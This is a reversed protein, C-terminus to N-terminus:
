RGGKMINSLVEDASKPEPQNSTMVNVAYVAKKLEQIEKLLPALPDPKPEEPAPAPKPDPDPAPAPDEAPKNKMEKIEQATFGADILKLMEEVTM